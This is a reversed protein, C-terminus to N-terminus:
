KRGWRKQSILVGGLSIGIIAFWLAMNSIVLLFGTIKRKLRM